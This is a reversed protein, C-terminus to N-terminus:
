GKRQSCSPCLLRIADDSAVPHVRHMTARCRECVLPDLHRTLPNWTVRVSRQLKRYKLELLLQVVDVLLRFAACASITVRVQYKQELDLIKREMEAPLEAIKALRERRQPETLNPHSLGAQMEAELAQYYERTNKADRALGRRMSGLFDSLRERVLNEANQMGIKVAQELHVPFHPPVKGASFFEPHSETWLDPLGPMLAGSGEHFAVEVLGEKREDSLAVYHCALVMYTTRAEARSGVRVQGDAFAIDQGILQEFGAKKLYLGQVQGYVVPVDRTALGILRDLLPSGYLLPAQESGLEVEEPFELEQALRPPLLALLRESVTEILGGCNDLLEAAFALLEPDSVATM